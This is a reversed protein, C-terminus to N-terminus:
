TVHGLICMFCSFPVWVELRQRDGEPGRLVQNGAPCHHQDDLGGGQEGAYSSM